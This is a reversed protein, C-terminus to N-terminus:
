AAEGMQADDHLDVQQGNVLHRRWGRRGPLAIPPWGPTAQVERPRISARIAKTEQTTPVSALGRVYRALLKWEEAEEADWEARWADRAAEGAEIDSSTQRVVREATNACYDHWALAARLLAATRQKDSPDLQVWEPSGFQIATPQGDPELVSLQARVFARTKRSAARNATISSTPLGAIQAEEEITLM